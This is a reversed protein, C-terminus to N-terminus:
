PKYIQNMVVAAAARTLPQDPRFTQDPYGLIIKEKVVAGVLGKNNIKRQDKFQIASPAAKLKLFRATMVAMEERSIAQQPRFHTGYESKVVIGQDIATAIYASSWRDTTVDSFSNEAKKLSINKAQILMTVFQERTVTQDPKFTGDSFGNIIGHNALNEIALKAWHNQIDKFTKLDIKFSRIYHGDVYISYEQNADLGSFTIKREKTTKSDFFIGDRRLVVEVLGDTGTWVFEVAGTGVKKVSLDRLNKIKDTRVTRVYYGDLYVDYETDRDLGQFKAKRNSTSLSDIRRGDKFLEVFVTRTTGSWSMSISTSTKEDISFDKLQNLNKLQFSSVWKDSILIKYQAEENLDYFTASRNNTSISDVKRSDRILTVPVTGSTGSWSVTVSSSHNKYLRLDKIQTHSLQSIIFTKVHHGNLFLKYEANKELKSYTAKRNSTTTSQILSNGRKLEAKVNGSTGNWTITVKNDSEKDVILDTFRPIVTVTCTAKKGGDVTSVTITATGAKLPTVVGKSNVSAISPNSTQWQVKKNTADAPHITAKLTATEGDAHLTLKTKDLTISHVPFDIVKIQCTATFGGDVSTAVITATGIGIATVKGNKDVKAVHSNTSTWNVQQNTADVPQFVPKLTVDEKGWTITVHTQNLTLKEVKKEEPIVTVSCVATLGGEVSSVIISATGPALAKVRGKDDVTAVGTSSSTWRVAQNSNSPLVTVSLKDTEEGVTLTLKSLNLSISAVPDQSASTTFPHILIFGILLLVKIFSSVNMTM